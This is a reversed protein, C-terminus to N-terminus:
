NIFERLLPCNYKKFADTSKYISYFNVLEQIGKFEEKESDHYPYFLEYFVPNQDRMKNRIPFYNLDYSNFGSFQYRNYKCRFIMLNAFAKDDKNKSLKLAKDYYMKAITLDYYNGNQYKAKLDQSNDCYTFYPNAGKIDFRDYSVMMWSNGFYSVNYYANALEAYSESTNQKKLEILKKIFDAKNFSYNLKRDETRVLAKPVFPDENLYENFSENKIWFNSPMSAFVKYALQLDNSRFAMTGKLDKYLNVDSSLADSCILKEFSTKNRKQSLAILYDADKISAHREFYGLYDYHGLAMDEDGAYHSKAIEAKIYFLGAVAQNEQKSFEASVVRYLSYLSKLSEKNQKAIKEVNNLYFALKNRVKENNLDDRKLVALALQINKQMQISLNTKDSIMVAYKKGMEIENDIFCLQAIAASVYDRQEGITKKHMSILYGRFEKLYLIDKTYNEKKSKEYDKYWTDYIDFAVAPVEQTYEPTLIWDELKNVERKILFSLLINNPDVKAIKKLGALCQGPNRLYQMGLITAREDNNKALKLTEDTFLTKYENFVKFAKDGCHMFIKCYEYNQLVLDEYDVTKYYLAPLSLATKKDKFYSNYLQIVEKKECGRPERLILFAYRQKLFFDTSTLIKEKCYKIDISEEIQWSAFSYEQKKALLLYDLYPKNKYMLLSKVFTNNKYIENLKHDLYAQQFEKGDVDYLIAYIDDVKIKNSLKKQWELCNLKWDNDYIDYEGSYNDGSYNFYSIPYFEKRQANFMSLRYIESPVSWGGCAFSFQFTLLLILSSFVRM